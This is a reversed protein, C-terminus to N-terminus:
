IINLVLIVFWFVHLLNLLGYGCLAGNIITNSIILQHEKAKKIRFYIFCLLLAPMIIKVLFLQMPLEIINAMFPNAEIYYGSKLLLLTLAIDIVNLIYLMLLKFKISIISYNKLYYLM